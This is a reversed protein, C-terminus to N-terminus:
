QENPKYEFVAFGLPVLGVVLVGLIELFRGHGAGTSAAGIGAAATAAAHFAAVIYVGGNALLHQGGAGDRHSVGFGEGRRLAVGHRPRWRGDINVPPPTWSMTHSQATAFTEAYTVTVTSAALVQEGVATDVYDGGKMSSSSGGGTDTGGASSSAMTSKEFNEANEHDSKYGETKSDKLVFRVLLSKGAYDITGDPGFSGAGDDTLEHRVTDQTKSTSYSVRSHTSSTGAGTVTKNVGTAIMQATM